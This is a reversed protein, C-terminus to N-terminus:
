YLLLLFVIFRDWNVVVDYDGHKVRYVPSYPYISKPEEKAEFSFKNLIQKGNMM